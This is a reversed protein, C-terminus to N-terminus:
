RELQLGAAVPAMVGGCVAMAAGTGRVKCLSDAQTDQPDGTEPHRKGAEINAIMNKISHNRYGKYVDKIYSALGLAWSNGDIVQKAAVVQQQAPQSLFTLMAALEAGYPSLSGSPMQLVFCSSWCDIMLMVVDVDAFVVWWPVRERYQRVHPTEEAHFSHRTCCALSAVYVTSCLRVGVSVDM